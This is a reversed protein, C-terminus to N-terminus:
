RRGSGGRRREAALVDLQSPHAPGILASRSVSARSLRDHLDLVSKRPASHPLVVLAGQLEALRPGAHAAIVLDFRASVAQHWPLWEAIVTM